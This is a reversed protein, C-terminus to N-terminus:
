PAVSVQFGAGTDIIDEPVEPDVEYPTKSWRLLYNDKIILIGNVVEPDEAAEM